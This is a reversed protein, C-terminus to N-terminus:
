ATGGIETFVSVPGTRMSFFHKALNGQGQWMFGVIVNRGDQKEYIIEVQDDWSVEDLSSVRQFRTRPTVFYKDVKEEDSDEDFGCILVENNLVNIVDGILRKKM